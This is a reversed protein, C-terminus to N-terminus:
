KLSESPNPLMSKEPKIPRTTKITKNTNIRSTEDEFAKLM